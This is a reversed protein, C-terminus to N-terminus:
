QNTVACPSHVPGTFASQLSRWDIMDVDTDGESDHAAQCSESASMGPGSVCGVFSAFDDLDTDGDHDGDSPRDCADGFGDNDSDTQDPNPVTPCNDNAECVVDGDCDCCGYDIELSSVAGRNFASSESRAPRLCFAEAACASHAAFEVYAIRVWEPEVGVGGSLQSGGLEDVVSGTDTGGCFLNFLGSCSPENVVNACDEPYDLDAYASVIGTNVEGSDTAWFEVYFAEGVDVSAMGEPLTAVRDAPSPAEVIVSAYAFDTEQGGTQVPVLFLMAAVAPAVSIVQPKIGM